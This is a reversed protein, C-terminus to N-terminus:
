PKPIETPKGNETDPSKSDSKDNSRGQPNEVQRDNPPSTPPTKDGELAKIKETTAITREKNRKEEEVSHVLGYVDDWKKRDELSLHDLELIKTTPSDHNPEDLVKNSRLLGQLLEQIALQFFRVSAISQGSGHLTEAQRFFNGSDQIKKELYSILNPNQSQLEPKETQLLLIKQNISTSYKLFDEKYKEGFANADTNFKEQASRFTRRSERYDGRLHTINGQAYIKAIEQYETEKGANLYLPKILILNRELLKKLRESEHKLNITVDGEEYKLANSEQAQIAGSISLLGIMSGILILLYLASFLVHGIRSKTDKTEM